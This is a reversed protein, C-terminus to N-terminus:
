RSPWRPGCTISPRASRGPGPAPMGGYLLHVRALDFPWLRAGPDALAAGLLGAALRDPASLAAVAGALLAKRAEFRGCRRPWTPAAAAALAMEAPRSRPGYRGQSLPDPMTLQTM